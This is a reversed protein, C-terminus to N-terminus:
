KISDTKPIRLCRKGILIGIVLAIVAVGLIFLVGDGYISLQESKLQESEGRLSEVGTRLQSNEQQEALIENQQKLYFTQQCEYDGQVCGSASDTPIKQAYEYISAM